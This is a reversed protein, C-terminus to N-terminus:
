YGQKMENWVDIGDINCLVYFASMAEGSHLQHDCLSRVHVGTGRQLVQWQLISTGGGADGLKSLLALLRRGFPYLAELM